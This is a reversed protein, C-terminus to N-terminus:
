PLVKKKIIKKTISYIKGDTGQSQIKFFYPGTKLDGMDIREDVFEKISVDKIERVKQGNIGFVTTTIAGPTSLAGRINIYDKDTPNPYVVLNELTPPNEVGTTKNMTFRVSEMTSLGRSDKAEITITYQGNKLILSIIGSQALSIREGIEENIWYTASAFDNDLDTISYQLNIDDTYIQGETPTVFTIKPPYYQQFRMIFSVSDKSTRPKRDTAEIVIKHVGDMLSLPITGNQPIGIKAGNDIKYTALAFDTDTITYELNINDTYIAGETPTIFTIKPPFNVPGTVTRQFTVESKLNFYDEAIIKITHTGMSLWLYRKEDTMIPIPTGNDIIMYQCKPNVETINMVLSDAASNKINIIPPDNERDTVLHIYTNYRLDDNINYTLIKEGNVIKFKLIPIGGLNKEHVSNKYLYHYIVYFEDTNLPINLEGPKVQTIGDRPETDNWDNPNLANNGTLLSTQAHAIRTIPNIIFEIEMLPVGLKGQDAFTGGNAYIQSLDWGNYGNYLLKDGNYVGDWNAYANVIQLMTWHSCWWDINPGSQITHTRDTKVRADWLNNRATIDEPSLGNIANYAKAVATTDPSLFPNIVRQDWIGDQGKAEHQLLILAAFPLAYQLKYLIKTIKSM